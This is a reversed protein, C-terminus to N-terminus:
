RECHVSEKNCGNAYGCFRQTIGEACVIVVGLDSADFNSLQINKLAFKQRRQVPAKNYAYERKMVQVLHSITPYGPTYHM